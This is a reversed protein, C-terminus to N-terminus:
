YNQVKGLRIDLFARLERVHENPTQVESLLDYAREAFTQYAHKVKESSFRSPQPQAAKRALRLLMLQERVEKVFAATLGLFAASCISYSSLAYEPGISVMTIIATLPLTRVGFRIGDQLIQKRMMKVNIEFPKAPTPQINSPCKFLIGSLIPHAATNTESSLTKILHDYCSLHGSELRSVLERGLAAFAEDTGQSSFFTVWPQVSRERDVNVCALTSFVDASYCTLWPPVSLKCFQEGLYRYLETDKSAESYEVAAALVDWVLGESNHQTFRLAADVVVKHIDTSAEGLDWRGALFLWIQERDSDNELLRALTETLETLQSTTARDLISRLKTHFHRDVADLIPLSAPETPLSPPGADPRGSCTITNFNQRM